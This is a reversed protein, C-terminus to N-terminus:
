NTWKTKTARTDVHIGWTYIGIGRFGVEEAIVALTEAPYGSVKIDAAKGLLHQSKTAGGVKANHATTRYGSSIIVARGVRERLVQLKEVLEMDILIQDTGDKCAFEKVQFNSKRGNIYFYESGSASKSYTQVGKSTEIM